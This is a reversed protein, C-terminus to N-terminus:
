GPTELSYSNKLEDQVVVAETTTTVVRMKKTLKRSSYTWGEPLNLRSSLGALSSEKLTPDVQQSWSQMVYKAGDADTLEFVTQGADFTFVTARNVHNPHYPKAAEIINAIAVTARRIMEIGGFDQALPEADSDVKEISDMLWYRPGNLVAIPANNAAAIESAVLASWEAQPCDNMPFSVYVNAVVGQAAPQVLLVECYRM